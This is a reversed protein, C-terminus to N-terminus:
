FINILLHLTSDQIADQFLFFEMLFFSSFDPHLTLKLRYYNILILENTSVFAGSYHLINAIPSSTPYM